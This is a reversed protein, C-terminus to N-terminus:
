MKLLLERSFQPDDLKKYKRINDMLLIELGKITRISILRPLHKFM